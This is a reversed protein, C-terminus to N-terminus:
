WPAAPLEALLEAETPIPRNGALINGMVMECTPWVDIIWALMAISETKNKMQIAYLPSAPDPTSHAYRDFSDPGDYRRERCKDLILRDVADTLAQLIEDNTPTANKTTIFRERENGEDDFGVTYIDDTEYRM